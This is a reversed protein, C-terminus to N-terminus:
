VVQVIIGGRVQVTKGDATTFQATPVGNYQTGGVFPNFGAASHGNNPTSVGAGVFTGSTNIVALNGAAINFSGGRVNGAVNISPGIFAATDDIVRTSGVVFGNDARIRGLQGDMMCYAGVGGPKQCYIQGANTDVPHTICAALVQNANNYTVAGRGVLWTRNVGDYVNVGISTYSPDFTKNTIRVSQAGSTVQFDANRLFLNGTNDTYFPADSYGTGGFSGLKAWIGYSGAAGAGALNGLLAIVAGSSGYVAVRGPKDFVGSPAWGVSIETANLKTSDISNAVIKDGRLSAIDADKIAAVAFVADEARIAGAAITGATVADAAINGARVAGAAITGAEVANAAINGALVALAALKGATVEGATIHKSKIANAQIAEAYIANAAIANAEVSGASLKPGKIAGDPIKATVVSGDALITETVSGPKLIKIAEIQGEIETVPVKTTWSSPGTRRYLALDTTNFFVADMPYQNWEAGSPMRTVTYIPNIGSAFNGGTIAGPPIVAAPQITRDVPRRQMRRIAYVLDPERMGFGATYKLVHGTEPIRYPDPAIIVISLSRLVYQGGVGYRLSEIQVTQGRALGPTYVAASLTPVPWARKALETRAWLQATVPETINRDVLTISLVGYRNQSTIDEAFATVETNNSELAGIVRVRNAASAFDTQYNELAFGVRTVGDPHDSLIFPPVISGISYYQLKGDYSVHWEAGTLECVQDLVDRVKADKVEIEGMNATLTVITGETFEPVTALCDRIITSDPTGDPWTATILTREFLIGWDSAEVARILHPGELEREIRMCFGGFLLKNTDADFLVLESWEQPPQAYFAARDYYSDVDYHAEGFVQLFSVSCTSIAQTSDQNITASEVLTSYSTDNGNIACRVRM